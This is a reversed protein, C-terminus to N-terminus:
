QVSLRPFVTHFSPCESGRRAPHVSDPCVRPSNEGMDQGAPERGGAQIGAEKLFPNGPLCSPLIRSRNESNSKTSAQSLASPLLIFTTERKRSHLMPLQQLCGVMGGNQRNRDIRNRNWTQIRGLRRKCIVMLYKPIIMTM